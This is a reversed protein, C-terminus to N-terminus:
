SDPRWVGEKRRDMTWLVGELLKEVLLHGKKRSNALM